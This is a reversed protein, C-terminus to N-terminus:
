LVCRTRLRSSPSPATHSPCGSSAPGGGTARTGAAPPPPTQALTSSPLRRCPPEEARGVCAPSRPCHVAPTAPHARSAPRGIWVVAQIWGAGADISGAPQAPGCGGGGAALRRWDGAAVRGGSVRRARRAVRLRDPLRPGEEAGEQGHRRRRWARLPAARSSPPSHCHCRLTITQPRRRSQASLTLTRAPIPIARSPACVRWKPRGPDGLLRACCPPRGGPLAGTMPPPGRWSRGRKALLVSALYAQLTPCCRAHTPRCCPGALLRHPGGAAM